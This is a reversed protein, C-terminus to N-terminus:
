PSPPRWHSRAAVSMMPDRDPLRASKETQCPGFAAALDQEDARHQPRRNRLKTEIPLRDLGHRSQDAGIAAAVVPKNGAYGSNGFAAAQPDDADLIHRGFNENGFALRPRWWGESRSQLSISARTMHDCREPREINPLGGDNGVVVHEGDLGGFAGVIKESADGLQASEPADRRLGPVPTKTLAGFGPWSRRKSRGEIPGRVISFTARAPRAPRATAAPEVMIASASATIAAASRAPIKMTPTRSPAPRHHGHRLAQRRPRKRDEDDRRLFGAVRQARSQRLRMTLRSAPATRSEPTPPRAMAAAPM